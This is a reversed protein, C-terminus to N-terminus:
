VTKTGAPQRSKKRCRWLEDAKVKMYEFIFRVFVVITLILSGFALSGLHYRFVWYLSKCTSGSGSQDTGWSFYWQAATAAIVFQLIGIIFATVWVLAVLHYYWLNRTTDDWSVSAFPTNNYQTITGISYIYVVTAIWYAFYCGVVLITIIPVLLVWFSSFVFQGSVQIITLSLQIEDFLCFLLLVLVGDIAWFIIALIKYNLENGSDTANVSKDYFFYGIIALLAAFGIFTVWVILKGCCRVVLMYVLSIVFAIGIAILLVKWATYLDMIYEGLMDSAASKFFTKAGEANPLCYRNFDLRQFRRFVYM